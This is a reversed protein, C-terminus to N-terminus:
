KRELYRLALALNMRLEESVGTRGGIQTFASMVDESSNSIVRNQNISDLQLLDVYETRSDPEGVPPRTYTTWRAKVTEFSYEDLDLFFFLQPKGVRGLERFLGLYIFRKPDVNIGLEEELERSM